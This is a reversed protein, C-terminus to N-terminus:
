NNQLSIGCTEELMKIAEESAETLRSMLLIDDQSLKVYEENESLDNETLDEIVFDLHNAVASVARAYALADTIPFEPDPSEAISCLYELDASLKEAANLITSIKIGYKQKTM